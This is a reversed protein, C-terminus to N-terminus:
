ALEVEIRDFFPGAAQAVFAAVAVEDEELRGARGGASM